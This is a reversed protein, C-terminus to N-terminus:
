SSPRPVEIYGNYFCSMKVEASWPNVEIYAINWYLRNWFLRGKKAFFILSLSQPNLKVEFYVINWILRNWYLHLLSYNTQRKIDDVNFIM